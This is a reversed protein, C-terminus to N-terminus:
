TNARQYNIFSGQICGCFADLHLKSKRQNMVEHLKWVLPALLVPFVFAVLLIMATWIKIHRPVYGIPTVRITRDDVKDIQYTLFTRKGITGVAIFREATDPVIRSANWGRSLSHVLKVRWKPEGALEMVKAGWRPDDQLLCEVVAFDTKVEAYENYGIITYTPKM